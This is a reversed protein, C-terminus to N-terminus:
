SRIPIPSSWRPIPRPCWCGAWRPPPPWAMPGAPTPVRLPVVPRPDLSAALTQAREQMIAVIDATRPDDARPPRAQLELANGLQDDLGYHEDVRRAVARWPHRRLAAWALVLPVPLATLWLLQSPADFRRIAVLTLAALWLGAPLAIRTLGWAADAMRQRRRVAGLLGDVRSM